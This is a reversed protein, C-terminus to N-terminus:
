VKVISRKPFRTAPLSFTRAQVPISFHFSCGQGQGQSEVWIKGGHNDVIKKCIALGMGSGGYDGVSHLRRFLEFVKDQFEPAIGIGNDSVSFKWEEDKKEWGIVIMPDSTGKYKIANEILNQFLHRFQRADVNISPLTEYTIIANSETIKKGLNVLVADLLNKLDVKDIKTTEEGVSTFAFVDDLMNTMRNAGDKVYEVCEKGSDDLLHKYKQDILDIYSKITRLPEKLDHSAIMAPFNQNLSLNSVKTENKRMLEEAFYRTANEIEKRESVDRFSLITYMIKNDNEQLIAKGSLEMWIFGGDKKLVRLTCNFSPQRSLAELRLHQILQKRDEEHILFTGYQCIIENPQFGLVDEISPSVFVNSHDDMRHVIVVDGIYNAMMRYLKDEEKLLHDRVLTMRAFLFGIVASTYGLFVFILIKPEWELLFLMCALPLFVVLFVVRFNFGADASAYKRIGEPLSISIDKM